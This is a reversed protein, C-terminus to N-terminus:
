RSTSITVSRSDFEPQHAPGAVGSETVKVGQLVGQLKEREQQVAGAHGAMVGILDEWLYM